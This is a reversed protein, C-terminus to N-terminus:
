TVKGLSTVNGSAIAGSAVAMSGSASVPTGSNALKSLTQNAITVAVSTPNINLTAMAASVPINNKLTTLASIAESKVSAETLSVKGASVDAHIGNATADIATQLIQTAANQQQTTLVEKQFGLHSAVLNYGRVGFTVVTAAITGASAVIVATAIDVIVNDM